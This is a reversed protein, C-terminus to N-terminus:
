RRRESERKMKNGKVLDMHLDRMARQAAMVKAKALALKTQRNQGGQGQGGM